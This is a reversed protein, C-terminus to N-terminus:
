AAGRVSGSLRNHMSQAAPQGRHPQLWHVRSSHADAEGQAGVRRRESDGTNGETAHITPSSLEMLQALEKIIRHVTWPLFVCLGHELRPYFLVRIGRQGTRAPPSVVSQSAAVAASPRRLSCDRSMKDDHLEHAPPSLPRRCRRPSAQPRPVSHSHSRATGGFELSMAVPTSAMENRHNHSLPCADWQAQSPVPVPVPMPEPVPLPLPSHADHAELYAKIDHAPVISDRGGLLVSTPCTIDSPHLWHRSWWFERRFCSQMTPDRTLLFHLFLPMLRGRALEHLPNRYLFNYLVDSKHLLFCIPDVFCAASVLAPHAKMVSALLATGLSHGMFAARPATPDVAHRCVMAAIARVLAANSALPPPNFPPALMACHKVLPVILPTDPKSMRLWLFLFVLPPFGGVGHLVVLPSSRPARASGAGPHYYYDLDDCTRLEFGSYRLVVHALAGFNHVLLYFGLPKWASALPELTHLMGLPSEAPPGDVLDVDRMAAQCQATVRAVVRRREGHLTSCNASENYLTWSVLEELHQTYLVSANPFWARLTAEVSGGEDCIIKWFRLVEATDREDHDLLARCRLKMYRRVRFFFLVELLPCLAVYLLLNLGTARDYLEWALSVFSLIRTAMPKGRMDKPVSVSAGTVGGVSTLCQDREPWGM